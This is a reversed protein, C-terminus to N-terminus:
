RADREGLVRATDPDLEMTRVFHWAADRATDHGSVADLFDSREIALLTSPETAIVSATRPVDAMLAVEGFHDFRNTRRISRGSMVVELEGDVVVYFREGPDGQRILVDGADATVHSAARALSELMMPPLHAFMPVRRLTSMEVVPVDAAADARRLGSLVVALITGTVVGVVLLAVDVDALELTLLALGAGTILGGSAVVERLTFVGRVADPGASRQLLVRSAGDLMSRSAGMVPLVVLALPYSVALGLSVLAAAVLALSVTLVPALRTRRLVAPAAIAVVAGLGFATSLVGPGAAGLDLRDRALVVLLYDLSGIMVYQAAVVGLVSALGPRTRLLRWASREVHDTPGLVPVPPDTDLDSVSVMVGALAAAACAWLVGDAGVAGLLATALLPGGLVSAGEAYWIWSHATVLEDPDRAHAPVLVAGSPRLTTVSGLAVTAAVVVVAVPAGVGAAFAAVGYGLCQVALGATRTRQARFRDILRGALPAAGLSGVLLTMSAFGTAATGARDFAFVLVAIVAAWEAIVAAAHAAVLRALAPNVGRRGQQGRGGRM